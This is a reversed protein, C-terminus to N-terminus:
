FNLFFVLIAHKMIKVCTTEWMWWLESCFFIRGFDNTFTLGLMELLVLLGVWSPKKRLLKKGYCFLLFFIFVLFSFLEM